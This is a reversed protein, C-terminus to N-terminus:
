LALFIDTDNSGYGLTWQCAPPVYHYLKKRVGTCSNRCGDAQRRKKSECEDRRGVVSRGSGVLNKSGRLNGGGSPNVVDRRVAGVATNIDRAAIRDAYEVEIGVLERAGQGLRGPMADRDVRFIL